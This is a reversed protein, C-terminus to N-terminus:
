LCARSQRCRLLSRFSLGPSVALTVMKVRSFFSTSAAGALARRNWGLSANRCFPSVISSQSPSWLTHVLSPVTNLAWLTSIPVVLPMMVSIVPPMFSPVSTSVSKLILPPAASTSCCCPPLGNMGRGLPAYRELDVLALEDGDLACRARSLTCQEVLQSTKVCRGAAFIQEVADRHAGHRLSLAGFQAVALNTKHELVIIQQGLGSRQLVNFQWQHVVRLRCEFM